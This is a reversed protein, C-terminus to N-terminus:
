LPTAILISTVGAVMILARCLPYFIAMLSPGSAFRPDEAAIKTLGQLMPDLASQVLFPTAVVMILGAVALIIAMALRVRKATSEV